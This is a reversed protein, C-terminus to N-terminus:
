LTKGYIPTASMKNLLTSGNSYFTLVGEVSSEHSIPLLQDLQQLFYSM